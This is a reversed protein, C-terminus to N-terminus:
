RLELLARSVRGLKSGRSVEGAIRELAARAEAREVALGAGAAHELVAELPAQLGHPTVNLRTLFAEALQAVGAAHRASVRGIDRLPAELRSAKALREDLLWALAGALGDADFRGDGVSAVVVDTAVRQLEPSKAALGGAVALWAVDDLRVGPDLAHELVVEPYLQPSADIRDVILRAAGAFAVEPHAPLVTVCWRAGLADWAGWAVPDLWISGRSVHGVAAVASALPGLTAPVADPELHVFRMGWTEREVVSPTYTM